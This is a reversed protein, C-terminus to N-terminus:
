YYDSKRGCSEAEMVFKYFTYHAVAFMFASIPQFVINSLYYKQIMFLFVLVIFLLTSIALWSNAKNDNMVYNSLAIGALGAILLGNIITPYFSPSDATMTLNILCSFIFLFPLTAIVFPLWLIQDVLRVVVVISLIRYVMFAVIGYLLYMPASSLFFLNSLLAFLLAFFYWLNRKVSTMYYLVMLTPILLPKFIYIISQYAFLECVVLVVAIAFYIKAIFQPIRNGTVADM